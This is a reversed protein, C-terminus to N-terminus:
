RLEKYYDFFDDVTEYLSVKKNLMDNIADATTDKAVGRTCSLILHVNFGYRVADLATYYVCYDTALGVLVIDTIKATKLITLLNTKEHINGFADGFASYSEIESNEGKRITVDKRTTILDPHLEAGPTNKVCHKPWLTQETTIKQKNVTTEYTIKEFADKGHTTCFSMHNPPHCDQTVFTPMEHTLAFRVKNIPAVVSDADGVALAGGRCFDRQVDIIGLIFTKNLPQVKKTSQKNGMNHKKVHITYHTKVDFSLRNM